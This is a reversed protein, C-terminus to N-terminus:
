AREADEEIADVGFMARCADLHEIRVRYRDPDWSARPLRYFSHVLPTGRPAVRSEGNLDYGLKESVRRSAENGEIVASAAVEAGLGEFALALAAARMETGIGHGQYRRGLWSGTDVMRLIRFDTARLEQIGIPRDDMVVALPLHWADPRWSARSGWFYQLFQREFAPPALDTWAVGFPMEHADHVGGQAVELLGFLDDDTPSRLELRPTRLRLDFLPWPGPM